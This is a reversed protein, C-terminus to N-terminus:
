KWLQPRDIIFNVFIFSHIFSHVFSRVFSRVFSHIFPEQHFGNGNVKNSAVLWLVSTPSALRMKLYQVNLPVNKSGETEEVM